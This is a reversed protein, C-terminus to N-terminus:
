NSICILHVPSKNYGPTIYCSHRYLTTSINLEATPSSRQSGSINNRTYRDHGRLTIVLFINQSNQQCFCLDLQPCGCMFVSISRCLLLLSDYHCCCLGLIHELRKVPNIEKCYFSKIETKALLTNSLQLRDELCSM